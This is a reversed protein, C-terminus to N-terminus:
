HATKQQLPHFFNEEAMRILKKQESESPFAKRFGSCGHMDISRLVLATESGSSRMYLTARLVMCRIAGDEMPRKWPQITYELIGPFTVYLTDTRPIFQSYTSDEGSRKKTTYYVTDYGTIHYRLSDNERPKVYNVNETHLSLPLNIGGTDLANIRQVLEEPTCAYVYTKDTDFQKQYSTACFAVSALVLPFVPHIRWGLPQKMERFLFYAAPVTILAVLDTLDAVRGVPLLGFQNWAAICGDALPLKWATFLLMVAVSIIKAQRPFLSIWFLTFTWLGCFDSLKGTFDGPLAQKLWHDNVLLLILPLLFVPSSLIAIAPSLRRSM